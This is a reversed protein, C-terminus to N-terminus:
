NLYLTLLNDHEVFADPLVYPAVMGRTRTTVWRLTYATSAIVTACRVMKLLPFLIRLVLFYEALSVRKLSLIFHCWPTHLAKKKHVLQSM